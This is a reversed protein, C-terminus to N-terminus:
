KKSRAHIVLGMVGDEVVEVVFFKMNRYCSTTLADGRKLKSVQTWDCRRIVIDISTVDSDISGEEFVSDNTSQFVSVPLTTKRGNSQVVLQEDFMVDFAKDTDRWPNRTNM